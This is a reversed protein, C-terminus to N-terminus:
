MQLLNSLELMLIAEPIHFLGLNSILDIHVYKILYVLPVYHPVYSVNHM